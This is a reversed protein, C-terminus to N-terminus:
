RAPVCRRQRRPQCGGDVLGALFDEAFRCHIHTFTAADGEHAHQALLERGPAAHRDLVGPPSQDAERAIEQRVFEPTVFDPIAAGFDEGDRICPSNQERRLNERIAVYEMEPTIIGRRAYHMQSVNAGAKAVRPLSRSPFRVHALKPDHERGRGFASSLAPLAETDGREEIWRARLPALGKALDITVDPDTYPGSPDYVTVPPNEEGGFLTPTRTQVIERMAVRLDPRSGEVHIKRSGPIPRTVSGSLQETQEILPSPVANM